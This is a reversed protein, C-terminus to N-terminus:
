SRKTRTVLTVAGLLLAGGVITFANVQEGLLLVGGAVSFLPVLYLQISIKSATGKGLLTSYILSGSVSSVVSLYLVSIWGDLSMAGAQTVLSGSLLPLMMATGLLGSWIVTPPAGYKQILPKGLVTFLAFSAASLVVESPGYLSSLDSINFSGISLVLMGLVALSLGALIRLGAKEGLLLVSLIVIFVSEFCFILGALGPSVITEAYNLPIHYGAVYAFAVAFLRPIDKRELRIKPKGLSPILGLYLTSSILWRLLALNVPSLEFDARRVATFAFGWMASLAVLGFYAWEM